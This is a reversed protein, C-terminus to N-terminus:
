LWRPTKARTFKPRPKPDLLSKTGTTFSAIDKAGFLSGRPQHKHGVVEVGIMVPRIIDQIDATRRKAWPDEERDFALPIKMAPTAVNVLPRPRVIPSPPGPIIVPSPKPKPAPIRSLKSQTATPRPSPSPVGIMIRGEQPRTQISVPTQSPRIEGSPIVSPTGTTAAIIPPSSSPRRPTTSPRPISSGATFTGPSISRPKTMTSLSISGFGTLEGLSLSSAGSQIQTGAPLGYVRQIRLIDSAMSESAALAGADFHSQIAPHTKLYEGRKTLRDAKRTLRIAQLPSASKAQARLSDALTFHGQVYDWVDKSRGAHARGTLVEWMGAAKRQSVQYAFSEQSYRGTKIVDGAGPSASRRVPTDLFGPQIAPSGQPSTGATPKVDFVHKGAVTEIGGTPTRRYGPIDKYVTNWLDDAFVAPNTTRVDIDRALRGVQSRVEAATIGPTIRINQHGTVSGFVTADHKSLIRATQDAVQPSVPTRTALSLPREGTSAPIFHTDRATAGTARAVGSLEPHKIGQITAQARGITHDSIFSGARTRGAIQGAKGIGLGLLYSEIAFGGLGRPTSVTEGIGKIVAKGGVVVAAPLAGPNTTALTFGAQGVTAVGIGLEALTLPLRPIKEAVGGAFSMAFKQEPQPPHMYRPINEMQFAETYPLINESYWTRAPTLIDKQEESESFELKLPIVRYEKGEPGTITFGLTQIQQKEKPAYQSTDTMSRVPQGQQQM